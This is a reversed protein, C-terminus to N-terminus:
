RIFNKALQFYIDTKNANKQICAKIKELETSIFHQLSIRERPISSQMQSMIFRLDTDQSLNEQSWGDIIATKMKEMTTKMTKVTANWRLCSMSLIEKATKRKSHECLLSTLLPYSVAKNTHQADIYNHLDLFFTEETLRKLVDRDQRSKAQHPHNSIIETDIYHSNDFMELMLMGLSWSDYRENIHM